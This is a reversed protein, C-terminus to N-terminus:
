EYNPLYLSMSQKFTNTWFHVYYRSQVDFKSVVIDCDLMNAVVSCPDGGAVATYRTYSCCYM